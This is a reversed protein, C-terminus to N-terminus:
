AVVAAHVDIQMGLRELVSHRSACVMRQDIAEGKIKMQRPEAKSLDHSRLWPMM